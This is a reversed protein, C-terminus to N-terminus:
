VKEKRQLYFCETDIIFLQNNYRVQKTIMIPEDITTAITPLVPTIAYMVITHTDEYWLPIFLQQTHDHSFQFTDAIDFGSILNVHPPMCQSMRRFAPENTHVPIKTPTGNRFERLPKSISSFAMHSICERIRKIVTLKSRFTMALDDAHSINIASSILPINFYAGLQWLAHIEFSNVIQMINEISLDYRRWTDPLLFRSLKMCYTYKEDNDRNREFVVASM